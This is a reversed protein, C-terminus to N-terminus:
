VRGVARAAFIGVENFDMKNDVFNTFTMGVPKDVAFHLEVGGDIGCDGGFFDRITGQLTLGVDEDSGVEIGAVDKVFGELLEATEGDGAGDDM